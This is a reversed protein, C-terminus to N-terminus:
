NLASTQETSPKGDVELPVMGSFCIAAIRHRGQKQFAKGMLSLTTAKQQDNIDHKWIQRCFALCDDTRKEMLAIEALKIQALLTTKDATGDLLSSYHEAAESYEGERYQNTALEFAVRRRWPEHPASDLALKLFESSRSKFGVEAFARGILFRDVFESTDEPAIAALAVVMREGENRLGEGAVMGLYRAYAAFLAAKKKEPLDVIDDSHNFLVRNASFPDNELLYAKALNM